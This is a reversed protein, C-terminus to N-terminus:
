RLSCNNTLSRIYYNELNARTPRQVFPYFQSANKSGEMEAENESLHSKSDKWFIRVENGDPERLKFSNFLYRYAFSSSIMQTRKRDLPLTIDGAYLIQNSKKRLIKMSRAYNFNFEAFYIENEAVKPYCECRLQRDLPSHFVQVYNNSSYVNIFISEKQELM